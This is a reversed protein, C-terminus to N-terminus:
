KKAEKTDKTLEELKAELKSLPFDRELITGTPSILINYPIEHVNYLDFTKGAWGGYEPLLTWKLSDSYAEKISIREIDKVISVFEINKEKKKTMRKYLEISEKKEDDCVKCTTSIFSLLIYKGRYDNLTVNKDKTNKLTFYPAHTGVASAKVKTSFDRLKDTLPFAEAKGKLLGLNEDLRPISNEDKFFNNILMVSAIKEPYKKVYNAALTSLEFNINKLTMVYSKEGSLDDKAVTDNLASNLIEVRSKLLTENERKFASLDDNIEGGQVDILDPLQADGKINVKLGKDVFVYLFSPNDTDQNLYLCMTTLTDVEGQFSFIGENNIAITDIIVSDGREHTAYFHSGEVNDLKGNIDFGNPNGKDCSFLGIALSLSLLVIAINQRFVM